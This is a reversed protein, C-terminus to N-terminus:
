CFALAAEEVQQRAAPRLDQLTALLNRHSM